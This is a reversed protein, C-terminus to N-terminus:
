FLISLNCCTRFSISNLYNFHVNSTISQQLSSHYACSVKRQNQKLTNRNNVGYKQKIGRLINLNNKSPVVLYYVWIIESTQKTAVTSIDISYSKKKKKGKKKRGFKRYSDHFQTPICLQVTACLIWALKLCHVCALYCFEAPQSLYLQM